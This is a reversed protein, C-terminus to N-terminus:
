IEHNERKTTTKCLDVQENSLSDHNEIVDKKEIPSSM